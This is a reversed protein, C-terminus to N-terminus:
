GGVRLFTLTLRRLFTEEEQASVGTWTMVLLTRHFGIQQSFPSRQSLLPRVALELSGQSLTVHLRVEADSGGRTYIYGGTSLLNEVGTIVEDQAFSLNWEITKQTM